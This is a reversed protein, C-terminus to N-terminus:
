KSGMRSIDQEASSNKVPLDSIGILNILCYATKYEMTGVQVMAGPFSLFQIAVSQRIVNGRGKFDIRLCAPHFQIAFTSSITSLRRALRSEAAITIRVPLVQGVSMLELLPSPQLSPLPSKTIHARCVNTRDMRERTCSPECAPWQLRGRRIDRPSNLDGEGLEKVEIALRALPTAQCTSRSNHGHATKTALGARIRVTIRPSSCWISSDPLDKLYSGVRLCLRISKCRTWVRGDPHFSSNDESKSMATPSADPVYFEANANANERMRKDRLHQRDSKYGTHSQCRGYNVKKTMPSDLYLRMTGNGNQQPVLQLFWSSFSGFGPEFVIVQYCGPSRLNTVVNQSAHTKTNIKTTGSKSLTSFLSPIVLVKVYFPIMTM